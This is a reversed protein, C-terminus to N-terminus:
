DNEINSVTKADVNNLMKQLEAASGVFVNNNTVPAEISNNQSPEKFEKKKKQLDMLKDTIESNQKLMNALVEGARPHESDRFLEFMVEIAERGKRALDYYQDRAFKYDDDIDKDQM